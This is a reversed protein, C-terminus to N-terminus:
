VHRCLEHLSGNDIVNRTTRVDQVGSLPLYGALLVIVRRNDIEDCVVHACLRITIM